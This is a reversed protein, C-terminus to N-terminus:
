NEGIGYALLFIINISCISIFNFVIPIWKVISKRGKFGILLGIVPMLMTTIILIRGFGGPPGSILLYTLLIFIGLFLFSFISYRNM